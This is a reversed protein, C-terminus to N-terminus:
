NAGSKIRVVLALFYVEDYTRSPHIPHPIVLADVIERSVPLLRRYAQVVKYLPPSMAEEDSSAEYFARRRKVYCPDLDAVNTARWINMVVVAMPALYDYLGPFLDFHECYGPGYIGGPNDLMAFNYDRRPLRGENVAAISDECYIKVFPPLHRRAARAFGPDFEYFDLSECLSSFDLTKRLGYKGFADLAILPRPLLGHLRLTALTADTVSLILGERRLPELRQRLRLDHQEVLQQGFLRHAVRHMLKTM